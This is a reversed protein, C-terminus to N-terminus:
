GLEDTAPPTTWGLATNAAHSKMRVTIWRQSYCTLRKYGGKIFGGARPTKPKKAM